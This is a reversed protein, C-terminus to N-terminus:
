GKRGVLGQHPKAHPQTRARAPRDADPQRPLNQPLRYHAVSEAKIYGAGVLAEVLADFPGVVHWLDAERCCRQFREQDDSLRGGVAKAEWWLARREPADHIGVLHCPMVAFVDAIGPTQMTGQYDGRRRRTGLVWVDAGLTELLQVGHAQEVKELVLRKPMASM